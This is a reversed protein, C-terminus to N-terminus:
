GWCTRRTLCRVSFIVRYLDCGACVFVSDQMSYDSPHRRTASICTPAGQRGLVCWLNRVHCSTGTHMYVYLRGVSVQLESMTADQFSYAIYLSNYKGVGSLLQSSAKNISHLM